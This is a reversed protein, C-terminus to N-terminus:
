VMAWSVAPLLSVALVLASVVVRSSVTAGVEPAVLAWNSLVPVIATSACAL